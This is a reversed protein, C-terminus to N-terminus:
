LNTTASLSTKQEKKQSYNKQYEHKDSRKCKKDDSNNKKSGDKSKHKHCERIPAPDENSVIGDQNTDNRSFRKNGSLQFEEFTMAEDENDDLVGFRIKAQKLQKKRTKEIVNDLRNMYENIYEDSNLWGDSNEDSKDFDARRKENFEAYEVIGDGNSDYKELMGGKNHTTPMRIVRRAYKKKMEKIEADTWKKKYDKSKKDKKDKKSKEWRSPPPTDNEDILLDKNTDYRKFSREGSASYEEWEIGDSKSKDLSKFRIKTQKLHAKREKEIKKDLRTAYEDVYETQTVVGNQDEDTRDFQAWRAEFFEQETVRADGDQDYKDIFSQQNGHGALAIHSFSAGILMAIFVFTNHIKM